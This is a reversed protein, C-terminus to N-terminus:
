PKLTLTLTLTLTLNLILWLLLNKTLIQALKSNPNLNPNTKSNANPDCDRVGVLAGTLQPQHGPRDSRGKPVRGETSGSSIKEPNPNPAKM